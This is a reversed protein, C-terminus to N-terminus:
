PVQINIEITEQGSITISRTVNPTGAGSMAQGLNMYYIELTYAGKPCDTITFIGQVDISSMGIISSSGGGSQGPNMMNVGSMGSPAGPMKIVAFGITGAQPAPACAGEVTAGSGGDFNHVTTEGERIQVNGHMPAFTEISEGQMSIATVMYSGAGLADLRYHGNQDATTMESVGNGILTVAAGPLNAGNRAVYGELSGGMGLALEVNSIKQANAIRIPSSSAQAYGAAKAFLTYSGDPLNNFEFRGDAGIQVSNRSAGGMLDALRGLQAEASSIWVSAGSPINGDMAIVRGEIVGGSQSVYLTVNDLTQGQTLTIEQQGPTFGKAEAELTYTGASLLIEFSGDPNRFTERVNHEGETFMALSINEQGAVPKPQVSYIAPAKGTERVLVKGRVIGSAELVISTPEDLRVEDLQATAYGDKKATLTIYGPEIGFFGYQGNRDSVTNQNAASMTETGFCVLSLEADAVPKGNSDTVAGYVAYDGSDVAPMLIELGYIDNFGDAYVPEGIISSKYGDANALVQYDGGPLNKIEFGGDQNTHEERFARAEDTAQFLKSYGPICLAVAGAVPKGNEDIVHGHVTTGPFLFVDLHVTREAETIIFPTSLQPAFREDDAYVRWEKNLDVGILEYYGDAESRDNVPPRKNIAIDLAQSILSESSCIFVAAGKVPQENEDLIFGWVKGAPSLQFDVNEIKQDLSNITVNKVPIKGPAKFPQRSLDLTVEYSGPLLGTITYAGDSASETEAAYEGSATVAILPIGANNGSETIKGSISAGQSLEIDLQLERIGSGPFDVIKTCPIYGRCVVRVIVMGSQPIGVIYRGDMNTRANRRYRREPKRPKDTEENIEDTSEERAQKVATEDVTTRVYAKFVPRNTEADRVTGYIRFPRGPDLGEGTSIRKIEEGIDGNDGGQTPKPRDPTKKFEPGTNTMHPTRDPAFLVALIILVGVGIWLAAIKQLTSFRGHVNHRAVV